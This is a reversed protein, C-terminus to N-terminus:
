YGRTNITLRKRAALRSLKAVAPNRKHPYREHAYKKTPRRDPQCEEMPTPHGAGLLRKFTRLIAKTITGYNM